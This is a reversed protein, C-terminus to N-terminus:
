RASWLDQNESVSKSICQPPHIHQTNKGLLTEWMHSTTWTEWRRLSFRKKWLTTNHLVYLSASSLQRTCIRTSWHIHQGHSASQDRVMHLHLYWRWVTAQNRFNLWGQYQDTTQSKFADLYNDAGTGCSTQPFHSIVKSCSCTVIINPFQHLRTRCWDKNVINKHVWHNIEHSAHRWSCSFKLTTNWLRKWNSNFGKIFNFFVMHLPQNQKRCNETLQSTIFILDLTGKSPLFWYLSNLLQQEAVPLFCDLFVGNIVERKTYLSVMNNNDHDSTEM